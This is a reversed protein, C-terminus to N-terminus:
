RDPIKKRVSLESRQGIGASRAIFILQLGSIAWQSQIQVMRYPNAASRYSMHAPFSLMEYFLPFFEGSFIASATFFQDMARGSM